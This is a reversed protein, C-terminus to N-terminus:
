LVYQCDTRCNHLLRCMQLVFISVKQVTVGTHGQVPGEFNFQTIITPLLIVSLHPLYNM